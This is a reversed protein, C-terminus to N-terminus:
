GGALAVIAQFARYAAPVDAATYEVTKDAARRAGPLLMARDAMEPQVLEVALSIPAQLRFPPPAEGQGLRRVARAAAAQIAAQAAQPSLCEAALRSTAQKVPATEVGGLLETAEACATQDGSLMIVPVQFHGCVAANLGIEGVARGNLWVGAVLRGSWTHSLIAQATGARAHYGVFMAASVGAAVGEVMSFPSPDGANLRARADLEEILLNRGANHGDTVIVEEAGGELAGRIAANVDATMLRRYRPYEAHAPTVHDWHVVGTVGEMDAAILIKM